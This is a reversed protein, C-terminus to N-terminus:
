KWLASWGGSGKTTTRAERREVIRIGEIVDGEVIADVVDMGKSVTAFVTYTHDLRPNDVLNVYLQGDGTDRGRTSLGATGRENSQLGVEDKWYRADGAFENAGPSGGQIVFNPVIRHFTLGNYYGSRALSAFRTVTAPADWALLTLSFSRGGKMRVIATAGDLRRVDALALRPTPLPLAPTAQVSGGPALNRCADAAAAAVRPDFDRTLPQLAPVADASGLEALREIIALRPDRSTDRHERTLRTLADTLARVARAPEPSGKLARAATMVLQYDARALQAIYVDDAGHQDVEVLGSVAATRVNDNADTALRRLLDADRLTAAARAAYTRVQWTPNAAFRSLDTRAADPAVRALSVLAHAPKHWAPATPSFGRVLAGLRDSVADSSAAPGAKLDAQTRGESDLTPVTPASTPRGVESAPRSADCNALTDIAFLSVHMNRDDMTRLFPECDLPQVARAYASLAEYRVQASRDDFGRRLLATRDSKEPEPATRMNSGAGRIALRRLEDDRDGFASALTATDAARPSALLALLALRRARTWETAFRPSSLPPGHAALWRLRALTADAPSMEKGHTRLLSELGKAAGAVAPAASDEWERRLEGTLIAEAKGADRTAIPLRGLTRCIAGRVANDKEVELRKRFVDIVDSTTPPSETRGSGTSPRVNGQPTIEQMAQGIANAAESRVGANLSGLVPVLAPVLARRELRGLARAALRQVDPDSHALARVLLHVDAESPARREQATLIEQRLDLGPTRAPPQCAPQNPAFGVILLSVLVRALM